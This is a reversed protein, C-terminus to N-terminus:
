CGFIYDNEEQLLVDTNRPDEQQHLSKHTLALSLDSFQRNCPGCKLHFQYVHQNLATMDGFEIQCISCNPVFSTSRRDSRGTRKRLQQHSPPSRVPYVRLATNQKSLNEAIKRLKTQAPESDSDSDSPITIPGGPDLRAMKGAPPRLESRRRRITEFTSRLRQRLIMKRRSYKKVIKEQIVDIDSDSDGGSSLQVTEMKEMAIRTAVAPRFSSYVEAELRPQSQALSPGQSPETELPPSQLIEQFIESWSFRVQSVTRGLKETYDRFLKKISKQLFVSVDLSNIYGSVKGCYETYFDELDLDNRYLNGLYKTSFTLVDSWTLIGRISLSQDWNVKKLFTELTERDIGFLVINNFQKLYNRVDETAEEETSCYIKNKEKRKIEFEARFQFKGEEEQTVHLAKLLDGEMKYNELYYQLGGPKIPRFLTRAPGATLATTCGVQSIGSQDQSRPDGGVRVTLLDLHVCVLQPGASSGVSEVNTEEESLSEDDSLTISNDIPSIDIAPEEVTKGDASLNHSETQARSVEGENTTQSREPSRDNNITPNSTATCRNGENESEGLEPNDDDQTATTPTEADKDNTSTRDENNRNHSNETTLESQMSKEEDSEDYIDTLETPQFNKKELISEEDDSIDFDTPQLNRKELGSEEDDSINFDNLDEKERATPVKTKFSDQNDSCRLGLSGNKHNEFKSETRFWIQCDKCQLVM